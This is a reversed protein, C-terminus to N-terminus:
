GEIIKIPYVVFNVGVNVQSKATLNAFDKSDFFKAKEIESVPNGYVLDNGYYEGVKYRSMSGTKSVCKLVYLSM